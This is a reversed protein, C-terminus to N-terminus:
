ALSNAWRMKEAASISAQERFRASDHGLVSPAVESFQQELVVANDITDFCALGLDGRDHM